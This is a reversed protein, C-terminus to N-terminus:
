LEKITIISLIPFHDSLHRTLITEQRKKRRRRRRKKKKSKFLGKFKEVTDKVEKEIEGQPDQTFKVAESLGEKDIRFPEDALFNQLVIVDGSIDFKDSKGFLIHDLVNSSGGLFNNNSTPDMTDDLNGWNNDELINDLRDNFRNTDINFDGLIITAINENSIKKIQGFQTDKIDFHVDLNGSQIHTGIINIIIGDKEIEIKMAGKSAMKDDKAAEKFITEKENIINFKSFIMVGGNMLKLDFLDFNGAGVKSSHKYGPLGNKIIRTVESDFLEQFVIVDPSQELVKPAILRARFTNKQDAIISPFMKVNYSMIKLSTQKLEEEKEEKPKDLKHSITKSDPKKKTKLDANIVNLPKLFNSIAHSNVFTLPQTKPTFIIENTLSQKLLIKAVTDNDYFIKKYRSTQAMFELVEQNDGVAYPAFMIGTHSGGGNRVECKAIIWCGLSHSFMFVQRSEQKLLLHLKCFRDLLENNENNNFFRDSLLKAFDPKVTDFGHIALVIQTKSEWIGWLWNSNKPDYSLMDKNFFMIKKRSEEKKYSEDVFRAAELDNNEM